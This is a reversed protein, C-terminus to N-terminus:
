ILPPRSSLGIGVPAGQLELAAGDVPLGVCDGGFHLGEVAVRM